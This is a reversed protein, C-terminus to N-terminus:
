SLQKRFRWISLSVLVLTFVSLALFNPWLAGIGSGKLMAGRSIQGFHQIPNIQAVPQLWKPMAEVPTFAGSLSTLPPNVFFLTLQAQRATRSFTAIFTGISIGCLLCLAAAAMVLSVSGRFPIGFVVRMLIVAMLGMLCLLAFLPFLKAVIVQTTSAPSMLLQELTGAEREKVLAAASILSGNLILLVGLIGTVIFWTPELGPNYLYAPHMLVNGRRSVDQAAIQQFNAHIGEGALTQNYSAIVGQAYGEGITATNSNMANLLVQVSVPKGRQLDRAYDYPIVLGADLNGNAIKRSMEDVSFYTGSGQFSKSETMTAVLERSEPTRSDDVVGLRLNSVTANLAFGFLLLQLTPPLILSFALRRDRLIQRFEKLILARMRYGVLSRINRM